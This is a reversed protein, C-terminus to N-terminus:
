TSEETSSDSVVSLSRSRQPTPTSSHSDARGPAAIRSPSGIHSSVRSPSRLGTITSPRRMGSVGSKASGASRVSGNSMTEYEDPDGVSSARSSTPSLPSPGFHASFATKSLGAPIGPKGGSLTPYPSPAPSPSVPKLIPTIQTDLSMDIENIEDDEKSGM